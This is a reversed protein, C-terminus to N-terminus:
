KPADIRYAAGIEAGFEYVGVAGHKATVKPKAGTGEATTVFAQGAWPSLLAVTQAHGDRADNTVM